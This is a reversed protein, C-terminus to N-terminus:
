VAFPPNTTGDVLPEIPSKVLSPILSIEDEVAAADGFPKFAVVSPMLTAVFVNMKPPVADAVLSANPVPQANSIPVNETVVPAVM